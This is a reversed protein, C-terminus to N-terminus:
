FLLCSFLFPHQYLFFFDHIKPPLNHLIKYFSKLKQESHPIPSQLFFLPLFRVLTKSPDNQRNSKFVVLSSLPLVKFSQVPSQPVLTFLFHHHRPTSKSHHFHHAKNSKLYRTSVVTIKIFLFYHRFLSCDIFIHLRKVLAVLPCLQEKSLLFSSTLYPSFILLETQSTNLRLVNLFLHWKSINTQLESVDPSSFDVHWNEIVLIMSM